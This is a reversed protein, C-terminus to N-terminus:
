VHARGIQEHELQMGDGIILIVNKVATESTTATTGCGVLSSTAMTLALLAAIMRQRNRGIYM